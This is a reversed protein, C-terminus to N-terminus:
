SAIHCPAMSPSTGEAMAAIRQMTERHRNSPSSPDSRVTSSELGRVKTTGGTDQAEAVNGAKHQQKVSMEIMGPFQRDM